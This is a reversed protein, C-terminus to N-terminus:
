KRNEGNKHASSDGLATTEIPAVSVNKKKLYFKEPHMQFSKIEKDIRVTPTLSDIDEIAFRNFEILLLIDKKEMQSLIGAGGSVEVTANAPQLEYLSHDYQGILRVPINNFSKRDLQQISVPIRAISDSPLVYPPFKSFDLPVSFEANSDLNSQIIEETQIEFLRTLAERAGSITITDPEPTPTGIITYGEKPSFSGKLHVPITRSIRTDIEIEIAAIQSASEFKVRPFDPAFFNDESLIVRELGLEADHLDVVIRAANEHASKLRILDITKGSVSITIQQAPRSAIALNEPLRSFILPVQIDITTTRASVVYFWLAIGFICAVIKLGIHKM